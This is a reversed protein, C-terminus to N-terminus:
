DVGDYAVEDLWESIGGRGESERAGPAKNIEEICADMGQMQVYDPVLCAFGCQDEGHLTQDAVVGRWEWVFYAVLANILEPRRHAIQEVEARSPKKRIGMVYFMM